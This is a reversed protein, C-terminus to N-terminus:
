CAFFNSLFQCVVHSILMVVERQRRRSNKLKILTTFAQVLDNDTALQHAPTRQPDDNSKWGLQATLPDLGMHTCVRSVFDERSIDPLFEIDRTSKNGNVTVPVRTM